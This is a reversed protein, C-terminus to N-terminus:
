FESELDKLAEDLAKSKEDIETSVEDMETTLSDLKKVELETATENAAAQQTSNGCAGFLLLFFSFGCIILNKM